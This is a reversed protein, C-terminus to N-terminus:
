RQEGPQARSTRGYHDAWAVVDDVYDRSANYRLLATWFDGRDALDVGESCLYRGAAMAADDIDHPDARGDADADVGWDRWTDPIFQLPGVARDWVRDGDWVGDDTDPIRRVGDSGDLPVGRIEPDPRGTADLQAGGYRGHGSEVAGIGALATWSLHCGPRDRELERAAYGYAQLAARPINLEDALEESWQGLQAQPRSGPPLTGDAPDHLRVEPPAVGPDPPASAPPPEFPEPASPERPLLASCSTLVVLAPVCVLM